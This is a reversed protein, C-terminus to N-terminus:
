ELMRYNTVSLIVKFPAKLDNTGNWSSPKSVNSSKNDNNNITVM